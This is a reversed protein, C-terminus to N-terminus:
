CFRSYVDAKSVAEGFRSLVRTRSSEKVVKKATANM